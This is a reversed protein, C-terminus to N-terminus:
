SQAKWRVKVPSFFVSNGWVNCEIAKADQVRALYMRGTAWYYSWYMLLMVKSAVDKWHSCMHKAAYNARVMILLMVRTLYM